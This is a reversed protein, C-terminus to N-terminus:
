VSYEGISARSLVTVHRSAVTESWYHFQYKMSLTTGLTDSTTTYSVEWWKM